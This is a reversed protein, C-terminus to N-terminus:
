VSDSFDRLFSLTQVVEMKRWESFEGTHQRKGPHAMMGNSVSLQARRAAGRRRFQSSSNCQISTSTFGDLTRPQRPFCVSHVCTQRRFRVCCISPAEAGLNLTKRPSERRSPEIENIAEADDKRILQLQQGPPYYNSDVLFLEISKLLGRESQALGTNVRPTEEDFDSPM